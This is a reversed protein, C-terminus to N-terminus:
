GSRRKLYFHSLVNMRKHHLAFVMVFAMCVACLACAMVLVALPQSTWAYVLLGLIFCVLGVAFVYPGAKLSICVWGEIFNLSMSPIDSKRKGSEIDWRQQMFNAEKETLMGFWRAASFSLIAGFVDAFLGLLFIASAIPIPEGAPSIAAFGMVQGQM